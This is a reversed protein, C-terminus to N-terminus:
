REPSATATPEPQRQSPDPTPTPTNTPEPTPTETPADVPALTNQTTTEGDGAMFSITDTGSWGCTGAQGSVELEVDGDIGAANLLAIVDARAFTITAHLKGDPKDASGNSANAADSDDDGNTVGQAPVFDAGGEIRLQASALSVGAAVCEDLLPVKLHAKVPEGDSDANLTSPTIKVNGVITNSSPVTVALHYTDISGADVDLLAASAFVSTVAVTAICLAIFARLV